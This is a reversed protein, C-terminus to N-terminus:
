SSQYDIATIELEPDRGPRLWILSDGIGKGPLDKGPACARSIRGREPNTEDEEAIIANRSIAATATSGNFRGRKGPHGSGTLRCERKERLAQTAARLRRAGGPTIDNPNGSHRRDPLAAAIGDGDPERVFARSRTSREAGDRAYLL